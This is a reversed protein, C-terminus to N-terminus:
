LLVRIMHLHFKKELFKVLDFLIHWLYLVRFYFYEVIAHFSVIYSTAPTQIMPCKCAPDSFRASTCSALPQRGLYELAIMSWAAQL